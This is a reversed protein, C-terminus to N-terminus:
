GRICLHPLISSSTSDTKRVSFFLASHGMTTVHLVVPRGNESVPGAM